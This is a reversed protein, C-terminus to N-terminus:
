LHNALDETSSGQVSEELAKELYAIEAALAASRKTFPGLRVGNVMTAWWGDAEPEVRSARQITGSPLDIEEQYIWRATGDPSVYIKM